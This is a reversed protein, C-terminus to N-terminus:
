VTLTDSKSSNENKSTLFGNIFYAPAAANAGQHFISRMIAESAPVHRLQSLTECKRVFRKEETNIVFRMALNKSSLYWHYSTNKVIYRM